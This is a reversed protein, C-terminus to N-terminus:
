ITDNNVKSLMSTWVAHEKAIQGNIKIVFQKSIVKMADTITKDIQKDENTKYGNMGEMLQKFEPLDKKVIGCVVHKFHDNIHSKVSDVGLGEVLYTMFLDKLTEEDLRPDAYMDNVRCRLRGGHAYLDFGILFNSDVIALKVYDAKYDRDIDIRFKEDTKSFYEKMIREAFEQLMRNSVYDYITAYKSTDNYHNDNYESIEKYNAFELM